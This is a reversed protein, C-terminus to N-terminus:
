CAVSAPTRHRADFMMVWWPIGRLSRTAAYDGPKRYSLPANSWVSGEHLLASQMVLSVGGGKVGGFM